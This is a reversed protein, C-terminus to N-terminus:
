IGRKNTEPWDYVKDMAPENRSGSLIRVQVKEALFEPPLEFRYEVMRFSKLTFTLDIKEDLSLGSLDLKIRERNQLGEIAIDLRGEIVKASKTVHTLVLKMHYQNERALPEIYLGHIDIGTINRASDMVGQYFELEHKLRYIEDQLNVLEEQMMATTEQDLRTTQEYRIIQEQLQRSEKILEQNNEWLQRSENNGTIRNVIYSWHSRDLMTWTLIAIAMSLLIVAAAFQWPRHSKIVLRPM